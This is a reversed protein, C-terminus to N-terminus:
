GYIYKINNNKCWEEGYTGKFVVATVNPANETTKTQPKQGSNNGSAPRKLYATGGSAAAFPIETGTIMRYILAACSYVDTYPGQTGKKMYQEMPSYADRNITTMSEESDSAVNRHVFRDAPHVCMMNIM